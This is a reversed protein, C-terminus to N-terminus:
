MKKLYVTNNQISTIISQEMSRTINYLLKSKFDSNELTKYQDM